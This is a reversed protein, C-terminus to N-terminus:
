KISAIVHLDLGDIIDDETRIKRSLLEAALALMAGLLLGLTASGLVQSTKGPDASKTPSTAKSLIAVNTQNFQSEMTSQYYEQLAVDYSRRANEVDQVLLELEDREEKVEFVKKEQRDLSERVAREQEVARRYEPHQSGLQGARVEFTRSQARVLDASLAEYRSVESDLREDFSIIGKEKQYATLVAQKEALKNRLQTLQNDFWEANRRAPAVNLELSTSIYAQAFNNAVTAAREPDVSSYSLSVVRSDRSTTVRLKDIVLAVLRRWAEDTDIRAAKYDSLHESALEQLESAPLARLAEEAVRQSKIIDIQTAFYSAGMQRPLASQEFPGSDGFDLVLSTTATYQRVSKSAMVYGTGAAVLAAFIILWRRSWLLKFFFGPSM